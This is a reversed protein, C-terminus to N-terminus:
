KTIGNKIISESMKKKYFIFFGLLIFAIALTRVIINLTADYFFQSTYMTVMDSGEDFLWSGDVFFTKHFTDFLSSFNLRVLIFFAFADLFTVIGGWIMALSLNKVFDKKDTFFLVFVLIIFLIIMINLFILVKQVLDKVDLLHEKEREDFLDIKVYDDTKDYRLYTLLNSNIVEIDDEPFENYINYKLFEKKYFNESFAVSRFNVLYLILPINLVLLIIIALILGKKTKKDM